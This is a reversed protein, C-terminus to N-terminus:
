CRLPATLGNPLSHGTLSSAPARSIATQADRARADRNGDRSPERSSPDTHSMRLSVAHALVVECSTASSEATSEVVRPLSGTLCVALLAAGAAVWSRGMFSRRSSASANMMCRRVRNQETGIMWIVQESRAPWSARVADIPRNYLTGCGVAIGSGSNREWRLSLLPRGVAQM